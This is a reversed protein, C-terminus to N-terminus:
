AGKSSDSDTCSIRVTSEKNVRLVFEYCDEHERRIGSAVIGADRMRRIMQDISNFFPRVDSFLMRRGQMENEAVPAPYRDDPFVTRLTHVTEVLWRRRQSESKISSLRCLLYFPLEASLALTREDEGLTLLSRYLAVTGGDSGVLAGVQADTLCREQRLAEMLEAIEFPDLSKTRLLSSCLAPQLDTATLQCIVCPVKLIGLTKAAEYRRNGDVLAFIGGLSSHDPCIRRVSLPSLMGYRRISECLAQLDSKKQPSRGQEPPCIRDIEIMHVTYHERIESLREEVIRAAAEKEAEKRQKQEKLSKWKRFIM